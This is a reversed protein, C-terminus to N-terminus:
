LCYILELHRQVNVRSVVRPMNTPNDVIGIMCFSIERELPLTEALCDAYRALRKVESRPRRVVISVVKLEQLISDEGDDSGDIAIPSTEAQSKVREIEVAQPISMKEGMDQLNNKLCQKLLSSEEFTIDRSERVKQAKPRM